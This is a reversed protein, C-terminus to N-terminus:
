WRLAQRGQWALSLADKAFKLRLAPRERSARWARPFSCLRPHVFSADACHATRETPLSQSSGGFCAATAIVGGRRNLRAHGQVALPCSLGACRFHFRQGRVSRHLCACCIPKAYCLCGCGYGRLTASGQRLCGVLTPRGNSSLPILPGTTPSHDPAGAIRNDSAKRLPALVTEGLSGSTPPSLRASPAWQRLVPYLSGNEPM